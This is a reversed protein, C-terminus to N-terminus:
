FLRSRMFILFSKQGSAHGLIEHFYYLSIYGVLHSVIWKIHNYQEPKYIPFNNLSVQIVDFLPDWDSSSTLTLNYISPPNPHYIKNDVDYYSDIKLLSQKWKVYAYAFPCIPPDPKDVQKSVTVYRRICTKHDKLITKKLHKGLSHIAQYKVVDLENIIINKLNNDKEDFQLNSYV